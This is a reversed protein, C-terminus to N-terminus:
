VYLLMPRYMYPYISLQVYIIDAGMAGAGGDSDDSSGPASGDLKRRLAVEM